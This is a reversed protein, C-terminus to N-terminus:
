PAAASPWGAVRSTRLQAQDNHLLSITESPTQAAPGGDAELLARISRRSEYPVPRHGDVAFAFKEHETGIRWQAKPKCGNSIFSILDQKNEILPSTKAM